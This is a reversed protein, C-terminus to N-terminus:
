HGDSAARDISSTNEARWYPGLGYMRIWRAAGVANGLIFLPDGLARSGERVIRSPFRLVRRGWDRILRRLLYGDVPRAHKAFFAGQAVGYAWRLPLYDKAPRWARHEVTAEPVYRICMGAELLRYGLDSDEAGPFATGPGLRPDFGGVEELAERFLAVNFPKLVDKGVRGVYEAPETDVKLTPAFAGPLEPSSPVVRGTVVCRRGYSQLASILNDFWSDEVFVDDHMFAIIEHSALEYGTNNARSLGAEHTWVYRLTCGRPRSLVEVEPNPIDSQDIVLVEAPIARGSLVSRLTDRLMDSRNRSCIILSAPLVTPTRTDGSHESPLEVSTLDPISSRDSV